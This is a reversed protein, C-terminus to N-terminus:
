SEEGSAEEEMDGSLEKVGARELEEETPWPPRNVRYDDWGAESDIGPHTM